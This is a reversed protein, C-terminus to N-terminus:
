SQISLLYDFLNTETELKLKKRLRYRSIEVGRLSINMLQAIEKSSLNMRLYACLKIENGTIGPHKEKLSQVFNSHVQDFHKTFNEWEKDMNEDESLTRILKKLEAHTQSSEQIKLIQALKSKINNFLETKKVLHMASSALETNKHMIEAELKENRLSVLESENKNIELEHIYLLRQQEEEYKKRQLRFKKKLWIYLGYMFALILLIYVLKAFSTQYWAPKVIFAFAASASTIGVNNRTRVEFVYQGPNLNTYEKETRKSFESWNEDYGILRFSYELNSQYGPLPAAYEFRLSNFHNEIKPLQGAQQVQTSHTPAFYGGFILSDKKYIMSVSRIQVSLKPINEKYKEYNIHYFGKEGSLLINYKDIPYIFEFGSLLKNSLEPIFFVEPKDKSIDIVGLTKQHIFWINGVADEQLYRISMNGLINKYWAVPEFRDSAGNYKYVGNETAVLVENRIKFVHNNLASPLGQVDTYMMSKYSGDYLQTVKFVGHYPHSVWIVDKSDIAIYRSSETFANQQELQVFRNNIFNYFVIGKYNGAVMQQAPYTNTLPLFNWYGPNNSIKRAENEEIVFAGEHHGLLLQNNIVDLGWTQGATNKVQVFDAKLFSLDKYDKLGVSYLGNSTGAYLRNNYIIATYGSGDLQLPNIQKIANNYTILDIGNDLGLWLNKQKDLFINLVNKNQLGETKSFKQIINGQNDIIYIGNSSSALAISQDDIQTAAYIREEGFLSNNETPLKKIQQNKLTFLGSRLTTLLQTQDPLTIISTIPDEKIEAHTAAPTWSDMAFQMLGHQLDQAWIKGHSSAMFMWETNSLFSQMVENRYRFIRTATRFFIASNLTAIDWVDGFNRENEPITERLSSYQLIGQANPSFFGIEDQGGVYINGDAGIKVSRVITKNPLPQLSWYHGDYILLGENNAVYIIGNADQDFDWNQLGAGYTQKPFNIVEPLGISNQALSCFPLFILLLLRLM